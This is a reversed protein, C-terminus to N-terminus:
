GNSSNKQSELIIITMDADDRRLWMSCHTGLGFFGATLMNLTSFGIFTAYKRAQNFALNKKTLDENEFFGKTFEKIALGISTVASPLAIAAGIFPISQFVGTVFLPTDNIVLDKYTKVIDM